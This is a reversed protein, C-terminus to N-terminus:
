LPTPGEKYKLYGVMMMLAMAAFQALGVIALAHWPSHSAALWAALGLAITKMAIMATQFFSLVRAMYHHPVEEMLWSNRAIRITSNGVQGGVIGNLIQM